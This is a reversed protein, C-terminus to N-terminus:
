VATLIKTNLYVLLVLCPACFCICCEASSASSRSSFVTLQADPCRARVSSCETSHFTIGQVAKVGSFSTMLQSCFPPSISPCRESTSHSEMLLYGATGKFESASRALALAQSGPVCLARHETRRIPHCWFPLTHHSLWQNEAMSSQLEGKGSEEARM